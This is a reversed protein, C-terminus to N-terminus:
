KSAIFYFTVQANDSRLGAPGDFELAVPGLDGDWVVIDDATVTLNSDNMRAFLRHFEGVRVPKPAVRARSQINIYGRDLCDAHTRQGPNRKVSVNIGPKPSFQWM